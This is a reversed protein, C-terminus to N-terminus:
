DARRKDADELLPEEILDFVRNRLDVLDASTMGKVDVAPQIVTHAIGPRGRTKFPNDPDGFIRWNERFVVPVIPVQEDIALKFAGDKFRGLRPSHTPITGEPFIALCRGDRLVQAAQELSRAAEMRSSRNVAINMTRFFIRFLPWKLLTHKGMFIFMEPVVNYMQVIDIYSSHNACIIYPPDPLEGRFELKVPALISWQLFNAWASKLKFAKPYGKPDNLLVRFFPYLVVMSGM